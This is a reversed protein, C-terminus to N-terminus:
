QISYVHQVARLDAAEPIAESTPIFMPAELGEGCRNHIHELAVQLAQGTCFRGFSFFTELDMFVDEEDLLEGQRAQELGLAIKRQVELLKEELVAERQELLQLAERVVEGPSHYRGSAVRGQIIKELDPLISINLANEM